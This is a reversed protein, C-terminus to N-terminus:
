RFTDLLPRVAEIDAMKHGGFICELSVRQDYGSEHLATFFPALLAGDAPTPCGRDAAPRTCHVHWLLSGAERIGDFSEGSKYMHFFDALVGVAPHDVERCLSVGESVTTIQNTEQDNLPEIAVKIGYNLAVDGMLRLVQALQQRGKAPDMGEPVRRATGSGMVALKGGLEKARRLAKDTYAAIKERDAKEGLLAIEGPFFCNFTEATLGSKALAAKAAAFDAESRNAIDALCLEIYDYGARAIAEAEAANGCVGLRM